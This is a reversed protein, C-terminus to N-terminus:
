SNCPRPMPASTMESYSSQSARFSPTGALRMTKLPGAFRGGGNVIRNCLIEKQEVDVVPLLNIDDSRGRARQAFARTDAYADGSGCAPASLEPQGDALTLRKSGDLLHVLTAYQLEGGDVAM